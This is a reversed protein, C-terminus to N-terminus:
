WITYHYRRFVPAFLLGLTRQTAPSMQEQWETDPRVTLAQRSFRLPNGGVSHTPQPYFAQQDLVRPELIPWGLEQLAQGLVTGPNAAFDEYRMVATHQLGLGFRRVYNNEIAWVLVARLNSHRAMRASSDVAALEKKHRKNWSYAVARGDRVLQLLRLDLGAIQSLLYLHSPVKSSDVITRKGGTEWVARYLQDMAAVLEAVDADRTTLARGYRPLNHTRDLRRALAAIHAIDLEPNRALLLEQVDGWFPCESLLAGCGCRLGGEAMYEWWFRIEGVSVFGPTNGLILELLTSGSRGAGGIYLVKM